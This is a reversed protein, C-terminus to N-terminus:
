LTAHAALPATGAAMYRGDEHPTICREFLRYRDNIRLGTERAIARLSTSGDVFLTMPLIRRAFLSRVEEVLRSDDATPWHSIDALEAPISRRDFHLTGFDISRMADGLRQTTWACAACADPLPAGGNLLLSFAVTRAVTADLAVFREELEALTQGGEGAMLIARFIDNAQPVASAAQYHLM